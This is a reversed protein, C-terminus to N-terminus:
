GGVPTLPPVVVVRDTVVRAKLSGMGMVADASLGDEPLADAAVERVELEVRTGDFVRVVTVERTDFWTTGPYVGPLGHFDPVAITTSGSGNPRVFELTIELRAEGSQLVVSGVDPEVEEDDLTVMLSGPGMPGPTADLLPVRDLRGSLLPAGSGPDSFSFGVGASAADDGPQWDLQGVHASGHVLADPLAPCGGGRLTGSLEARHSGPQAGSRAAVTLVNESFPPLHLALGDGLRLLYGGDFRLVHEGDAAHIVLEHPADPHGPDPVCAVDARAADDAGSGSGGMRGGMFSEGDVKWGGDELVMRVMAESPVGAPLHGARGELEVHLHAEDGEQHVLEIRGPVAVALLERHAEAMFAIVDAAMEPNEARLAALEAVSARSRFRESAADAPTLGSAWWARYADAPGQAHTAVPFLLGAHTALLLVLVIRHRRM